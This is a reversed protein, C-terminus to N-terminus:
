VGNFEPLYRVVGRRGALAGPRLELVMFVEDAVKHEWPVSLPRAPAFGFRPYYWPHGIVFVISEGHHDRLQRLGTRILASGIGRRQHDPHVAVPGLASATFSTGDEGSVTVPTFMAHAVVHDADTAVLSTVPVGGGRLSQVLRVERDGGFAALNLADVAAHDDITEARVSLTALADRGRQDPSRSPLVGEDRTLDLEMALDCRSAHVSAACMPRFGRRQYMAIADKLVGATELMVRAFGMRRAQRLAHELLRKGLGRGRNERRVYMKRLEVTEFDIPYLGVCGVIARDDERDPDVLVDFRGGRKFYAAELDALDADTDGPDPAMGFEGLVGFVVERVAAGDANVARRLAISSLPDSERQTGMGAFYVVALAGGLRRSAGLVGLFFFSVSSVFLV